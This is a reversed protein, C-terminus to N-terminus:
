KNYYFVYYDYGTYGSPDKYTINIYTAPAYKSGPTKYTSVAIKSKNKVVKTSYHGNADRTEVEIKQLKYGKNMTVTLKATSTSLYPKYKSTSKTKFNSSSSSYSDIATGLKVSKVAGYGTSVTIKETHKIIRGPGEYSGKSDSGYTSSEYTNYTVTYTGAKLFYVNYDYTTKYKYSYENKTSNYYHKATRLRVSNRNTGTKLKKVKKGAKKIKLDTVGYYSRYSNVSTTYKVTKLKTKKAAAEVPAGSFSFLSVIFALVLTYVLIKSKKLQTM